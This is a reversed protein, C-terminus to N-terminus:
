KKKKKQIFVMHASMYVYSFSQYAQRYLNHCCTAIALLLRSPQLAAILRIRYSAILSLTSPASMSSHRDSSAHLLLLSFSWEFNNVILFAAHQWKRNKNGAIKYIKAIATAKIASLQRRHAVLINAIVFQSFSSSFLLTTLYLHTNLIFTIFVLIPLLLFILHQSLYRYQLCAHM